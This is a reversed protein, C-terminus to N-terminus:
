ENNWLEIAHMIQERLKIAVADAVKEKFSTTDFQTKVLNDIEEKRGDVSKRVQDKIQGSVFSTFNSFYSSSQDVNVNISKEVAEKVKQFVEPKELVQKVVAETLPKSILDVNNKLFAVFVKEMFEPKSYSKLFENLDLTALMKDSM